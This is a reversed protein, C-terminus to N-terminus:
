TAMTAVTALRPMLQVAPTFLLPILVSLSPDSSLYSRLQPCYRASEWPLREVRTSHLRVFHFLLSGRDGITGEHGVFSEINSMGEARHAAIFADDASLAYYPKLRDVFTDQSHTGFLSLIVYRQDDRRIVRYPGSWPSHFKSSPTPLKWLVLDGREYIKGPADRVHRRAVIESLHLRASRIVKDLDNDLDQNFVRFDVDSPELGSTTTAQALTVTTNVQSGYIITSPPVGTSTHETYNLIRQVFPLVTSWQSTPEVDQLIKRMVQVITKNSREVIGNAQPHYPASLLQRVQLTKLLRAIVANNFQRGQDSQIELPYPYRSFICQILANAASEATADAAAYLEVYRSFGDIMVVVYQMGKSDIPFPGMTDIFVKEFPAYSSTDRRAASAPLSNSNAVQCVHCAKVFLIAEKHCGRWTLHADRLARMIESARRHTPLHFHQLIARREAMTLGALIGDEGVQIPEAPQLDSICAPLTEGQPPLEGSHSSDGPSLTQTRPLHSTDSSSSTTAESSQAPSASTSIAPLESSNADSNVRDDLSRTSDPPTVRVRPPPPGESRSWQPRPIPNGRGIVAFCYLSKGDIGPHLRSLADAVVNDKGAIFHVVIHFQQLYARWRAVKPSPHHLLYTLNKHDTHLHITRGLVLWEMKLLAYYAAFAEQEITSWRTSAGSFAHSVFGIPRQRQTTPDIQYFYGGIGVNSADSELHIPIDDLVEHALPLDALAKKLSEFANTHSVGVRYHAARALQHLPACITALHPIFRQFYIVKGLYSRLGRAAPPFPHELLARTMSLSPSYTGHSIHHGLYEMSTVDIVCKEGRLTVNGDRLKNFVERLNSLLEAETHAYVVIDDIYIDCVRRLVDNGIISEVARQFMIPANRLGFPVRTFEYVQNEALFATWKRSAEEVELQHFGNKLDLKAFYRFKAIRTLLTPIHPLPSAIPETHLNLRSYDVCMRFSTGKAVLVIPSVVPSQSPRIVGLELLRQCETSVFELREGALNRRARALNPLVEQSGTVSITYPPAVLASGDSKERFLERFELVLQHFSPALAATSDLSPLTELGVEVVKFASTFADSSELETEVDHEASQYSIFRQLQHASITRRGILGQVPLNPMLHFLLDGLPASNELGAAITVGRLRVTKNIFITHGGATQVSFEPADKIDGTGVWGKAVSHHIFDENIYDFGSGSDLILSLPFPFTDVTVPVFEDVRTTAVSVQIPRDAVRFVYDTPTNRSPLYASPHPARVKHDRSLWRMAPSQAGGFSRDKATCQDYRTMGHDEAGCHHCFFKLPVGDKDVKGSKFLSSDRVELRVKLIDPHRQLRERLAKQYNSLQRARDEDTSSQGSRDNITVVRSHSAPTISKRADRERNDHTSFKARQDMRGGATGQSVKSRFLEELNMYSGFSQRYTVMIRLGMQVQELEFIQRAQELLIDCPGNWSVPSWINFIRRFQVGVLAYNEASLVSQGHMVVLLQWAANFRSLSRRLADESSFVEKLSSPPNIFEKLSFFWDGPGPIQEGIMRLCELDSLHELPADLLGQDVLSALPPRLSRPMIAEAEKAAYVVRMLWLVRASSGGSLLRPFKEFAQKWSADPREERKAAICGELDHRYVDLRGPFSRPSHPYPRVPLGNIMVAMEFDMNLPLGYGLGEFIDPVPRPFGNKGDESLGFRGPTTLKTRSSLQEEIKSCKALVDPDLKVVDTDRVPVSLSIPKSRLSVASDSVVSLSSWSSVSSESADSADGQLSDDAIRPRKSTWADSTVENGDVQSKM